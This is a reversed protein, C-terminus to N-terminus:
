ESVSNGDWRNFWLLSSIFIAFTVPLAVYMWTTLEKSLYSSDALKSGVVYTAPLRLSWTCPLFYWIKDGLSTMSLLTILTEAFGFGISAGGGLMISLWLHMMYAPLCGVVILFLEILWAIVSQHGFLIAFIAVAISTSFSFSVLLALLKGIYAKSRSKTTSLLVQFRGANAEMDVVKSTVAGCIIPFVAGLLLLYSQIIDTYDFNRLGTNKAAAYFLLAYLVPLIINAWPIWTHKFKYFESRLINIM